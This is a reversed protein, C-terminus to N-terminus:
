EIDDADYLASVRPLSREGDSTDCRRRKKTATVQATDLEQASVDVTEDDPAERARLGARGDRLEDEIDVTLPHAGGLVRRAIRATEELTTM